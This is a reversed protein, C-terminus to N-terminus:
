RPPTVVPQPEPDARRSRVTPPRAPRTSPVVDALLDRLEGVRVPKPLFTDMGARVCAERDRPQVSATLAVVYPQKHVPLGRIRRTAELGDMQPMQVDMLVVDYSGSEVALVAQLGNDVIDVRYGLKGLILAEVRQNMLNDEALLLRLAPVKESRVTAQTPLPPAQAPRRMIATMLAKELAARKVPKTLLATFSNVPDPPQWGLSTLLVQPATAVSAHQRLALGLEVGTMPTMHMDLLAVDYRLGDSVLQLASAADAATTCIMGLAEARRDLIRLSAPNDDVLLISMGALANAAAPANDVRRDPATELVLTVTFTSGTGPTSSVSVEGGMARALKRSIALGLGTGGYVRTTSADVQSFSTFLRSLGDASIGIGTDSVEITLQTQADHTPACGVAVIVEGHETFKVANSLLNVIIQRFRVVDGCVRDRCSEDIDCALELGKATADPAVLDLCNEIEGTLDFAASELELQGSEIKSFDLIDNIVAMLADGSSRITNLFETQQEDLETDSLLDTMGIVANMPTRIEHSMNAVFDSKMRSADAADDRAQSLAAEANVEATVDMLTGVWGVTHGGTDHMARSTMQAVRAAGGPVTIEFRPRGEEERALGDGVEATLAARHEEDIIVDWNQGVAMDLSLGTIEVWRPNAYTYRNQADTQFIGIPAAETLRRLQDASAQVEEAQAALLQARLFLNAFASVKARLEDPQVPSTIFDVAGQAYRDTILIEDSAQATTFIIPTMESQARMRILAATEFGDMVPMRVDLLIVAFDEATICRLAALGSDAEVLPYGLPALVAKLALLKAPNDDVLLIPAPETPGSSIPRPVPEAPHSLTM